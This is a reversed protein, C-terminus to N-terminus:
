DEELLSRVFPNKRLIKHARTLYAGVANVSIGLTKAIEKYPLGRDYRLFVCERCKPPLGRLIEDLRASTEAKAALDLPNSVAAVFVPFGSGRVM